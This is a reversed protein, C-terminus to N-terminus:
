RTALQQVAALAKDVNDVPSVGGITAAIRGDQRVVFTTREAYGHDIDAGRTDKRGAQADRVNLAYSRAIRGDTDSAVAVKGGCYQPDASFESLRGISDLSVGVVSAGAATFADHNVAFSRAQLNCGNTYASPYFYVVVPGTRLADQLSYAFTKGALAAQATFAPAADGEQLAAQAAPSLLSAVSGTALLALVALPRSIRKSTM